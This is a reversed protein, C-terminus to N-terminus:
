GASYAFAFCVTAFGPSLIGDGTEVPADDGRRALHDLRRQRARAPRIGYQAPKLGCSASAVSFACDTPLMMVNPLEPDRMEAIQGPVLFEIQHARGVAEARHIQEDHRMVPLRDRIGFHEHM